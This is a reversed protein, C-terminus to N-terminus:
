SSSAPQLVSLLWQLERTVYEDVDGTKLQAPLVDWTYTEIELHDSLPTELHVRMATEIGSRTTRFLGLDDLFVPVHFHTRWEREGSRDQEWAAIADSLTLFRTLQGDRRETTQSLYITDTFAKLAEVVEDTVEPMRLAAAAQLKFIPVGARRLQGLSDAIDEFGVSQHCIDFVIGLHRRVLGMVESAPLGTLEALRDQGASSWVHEQFYAVTEETTELFCAPEPELALKVRRGTRRELDILGAVVRLLNTTLSDVDAPSHVNPRFALPATQISPSVDNPALEALIEAVQLTYRVRDETAWDPEYVQEMVVRGKFPGYPFANVTYVYMGHEDLWARFRAREVPDATLTAASEASLRLSVGYPADPSIQAKVAPAHGEISERMEQWNDGSHVLTSYALHGLQDGLFM